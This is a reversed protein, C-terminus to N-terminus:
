EPGPPRIVVQLTFNIESGLLTSVGVETTPVGKSNVTSKTDKPWIMGRMM